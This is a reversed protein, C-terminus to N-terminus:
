CSHCWWCEKWTRCLRKQRFRFNSLFNNFLFYV